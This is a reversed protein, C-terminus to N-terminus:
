EVLQWYVKMIWSDECPTQGFVLWGCSGRRSEVQNGFGLFWAFVGGAAQWRYRAAYGCRVLISTFFFLTFFLFPFFPLLVFFISTSVSWIFSAWFCSSTFGTKKFFVFVFHRVPYFYLKKWIAPSTALIPHDSSSKSTLLKCDENKLLMYKLPLFFVYKWNSRTKKWLITDLKKCRTVKDGRLNGRM